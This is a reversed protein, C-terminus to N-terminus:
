TPFVYGLSELISQLDIGKFTMTECKFTWEPNVEVMESSESVKGLGIGKGNYLFDMIVGATSLNMSQSVTMFDDQVIVSIPYSHEIDAASIYQYASGHNYDLNTYVHDGDPAVLTVIKQNQNNLPTVKFQYSIKCYAGSDNATGDQNCRSANLSIVRPNLYGYVNYTNYRYSASTGNACTVTVIVYQSTDTTDELMMQLQQVDYYDWSNILTGSSNYLSYNLGSFTTNYRYTINWGFTLTQIGGGIYKGYRALLGSPSETISTNSIIPNANSDTQNIYSWTFSYLYLYEVKYGVSVGSKTSYLDITQVIFTAKINGIDSTRPKDEYPYYFNFSNFGSGNEQIQTIGNDSYVPAYYFDYDSSSRRYYYAYVKYPDAMKWYTNNIVTNTLTATCVKGTQPMPTISFVQLNIPAATQFTTDKQVVGDVSVIFHITIARGDNWPMTLAYNLPNVNDYKYHTFYNSTYTIQMPIQGSSITQGDQTIKLEVTLTNTTQGDAYTEFRFPTIYGDTVLYDFSVSPKLTAGRNDFNHGGYSFNFVQDVITDRLFVLSM